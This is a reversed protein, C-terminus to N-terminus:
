SGHFCSRRMHAAFPPWDVFDYGRAMRNWGTQGQSPPALTDFISDTHASTVLGKRAELIPMPIVDKHVQWQLCVILFYWVSIGWFSWLPITANRKWRYWLVSPLRLRVLWVGHMLWTEGQMKRECLHPLSRRDFMQYWRDRSPIVQRLLHSRESQVDSCM